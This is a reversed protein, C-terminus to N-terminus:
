NAEDSRKVFAAIRELSTEDDLLPAHGQDAIELVDLDSRRGRMADLTESSLVDSLMGRIVMVPMAKLADFQAWLPPPM